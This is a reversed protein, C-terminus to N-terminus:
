LDIYVFEEVLENGALVHENADARAWFEKTWEEASMGQEWKFQLDKFGVIAGPKVVMRTGGECRVEERKDLMEYYSEWAWTPWSEKDNLSFVPFILNKYDDLDKRQYIGRRELGAIRLKECTAEREKENKKDECFSDTQGENWKGYKYDRDRKRGIKNAKNKAIEPEWKTTVWIETQTRKVGPECKVRKENQFRRYKEARAKQPVAYLQSIFELSM